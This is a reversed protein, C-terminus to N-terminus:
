DALGAFFHGPEQEWHWLVSYAYQKALRDHDESSLPDALNAQEPLTSWSKLEAAPLFSSVVPWLEQGYQIGVDFVAYPVEALHAPLQGPPQDKVLAALIGAAISRVHSGRTRNRLTALLAPILWRSVPKLTEIWHSLYLPNIWPQAFYQDETFLFEVVQ